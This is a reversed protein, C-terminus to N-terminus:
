FFSFSPSSSAPVPISVFSASLWAAMSPLFSVDAPLSHQPHGTLWAWRRNLSCKPLQKVAVEPVETELVFMAGTDIISLIDHYEGSWKVSLQASRSSGM